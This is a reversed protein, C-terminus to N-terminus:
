RALNFVGDLLFLGACALYAQQHKSNANRLIEWVISLTLLATVMFVTQQRVLANPVVYFFFASNAMTVLVLAVTFNLLPPKHLKVRVANLFLMGSTVLATEVLVDLIPSPIQPAWLVGIFALCYVITGASWWGANAKFNKFRWFASLSVLTVTIVVVACLRISSIDLNFM